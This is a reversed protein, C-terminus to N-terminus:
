TRCSEFANLLTVIELVKGPVNGAIVGKKRGDNWGGTWRSVVNLSDM